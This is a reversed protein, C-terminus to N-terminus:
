KAGAGEERAKKMDQWKQWARSVAMDVDPNISTQYAYAYVKEAEKVQAATPRQKAM